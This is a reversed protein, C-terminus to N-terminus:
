PMRRSISHPSCDTEHSSPISKQAGKPLSHYLLIVPHEVFLNDSSKQTLVGLQVGEQLVNKLKSQFIRTPDQSRVTCTNQDSLM